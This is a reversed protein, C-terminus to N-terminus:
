IGKESWNETEERPLILSYGYIWSELYPLVPLSFGAGTAQLKVKTQYNLLSLAGILMDAAWNQTLLDDSSSADSKIDLYLANLLNLQLINERYLDRGTERERLSFFDSFILPFSINPFTVQHGGSLTVQAGAADVFLDLRLDILSLSFSLETLSSIQMAGEPRGYLTSFGSTSFFAKECLKLDSILPHDGLMVLNGPLNLEIDLGLAAGVAGQPDKLHLEDLYLIGASSDSLTLKFMSLSG